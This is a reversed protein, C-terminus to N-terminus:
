YHLSNVGLMHMLSKNFAIHVVKLVVMNYRKRLLKTHLVM